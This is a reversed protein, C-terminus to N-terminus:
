WVVNAPRGMGDMEVVAAGSEVPEDGDRLRSRVAAGSCCRTLGDLGSPTEGESSESSVGRKARYGRRLRDM